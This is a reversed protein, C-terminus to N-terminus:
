SAELEESRCLGCNDAPQGRHSRCKPANRRREADALEWRNRARRADGCPGCPGDTPNELHEPCRPEPANSPQARAPTPTASLAGGLFPDPRTPPEVIPSALAERKSGTKSRAKGSNLGGIGLREATERADSSSQEPDTRLGSTPGENTARQSKSRTRGSALGGIRGAEAKKERMTRIDNASPNYANWDHFQYGGRVRRWLGATALKRALKDSDPLLRSLVHDPVFGDTLHSSSWAGAVVWLGLADADTALVKPHAHFSDDVKFWTM